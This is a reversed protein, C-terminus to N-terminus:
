FIVVSINLMNINIIVKQKKNNPKGTAKV